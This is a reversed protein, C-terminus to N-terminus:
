ELDIRPALYYTFGANGLAYKIKVPANTKLGLEVEVDGNAGKVMDEFYQVPFTAKAAGKVEMSKISEDGDEFELDAEANDGSASIRLKKGKVEFTIHSSVMAIDRIADKFAGAKMLINVDHEVKPEREVGAGVEIMPVKFSKKSKEALFQVVVKNEEDFISVKGGKGGRSLIKNFNDLNLGVVQTGEVSYETFAKNPMTFIVMAIQSPDLAHLSIGEKKFSFAGEDILNGLAEIAGKFEGIENVDIKFM